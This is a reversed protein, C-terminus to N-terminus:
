VYRFLKRTDECAREVEAAEDETLVSAHGGISDELAPADALGALFASWAAQRAAADAPEAAPTETNADSPDLSLGCFRGLEAAVDATKRILDEYRVFLVRNRLDLGDVDFGRFTPIYHNNYVASLTAVNRGTRTFYSDVKDQKHREYVQLMSAITDKPERVSLVFRTAPFFAALHPVFFSLAPNELVLVDPADLRAHAQVLFREVVQRTFAAFQRKDTFYHEIAPGDQRVFRAYLQLQATLYRCEDILHNAGPATCIVRNLLRTGSLLCGAVFVIRFPPPM